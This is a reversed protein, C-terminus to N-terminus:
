EENKSKNIIFYTGVLGTFLLGMVIILLNNNGKDEIESNKYNIVFYSLKDVYLSIGDERIEYDVDSIISEHETYVHYVSEKNADEGIESYPIYVELKNTPQLYVDNKRDYINISILKSKYDLVLKEQLKGLEEEKLNDLIDVIVKINEDDNYSHQVKELQYNISKAEKIM